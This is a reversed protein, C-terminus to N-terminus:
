STQGIESSGGHELAICGFSCGSARAMRSTGHGRWAKPYGATMPPSVTSFGRQVDVESPAPHDALLADGAPTPDIVLVGRDGAPTFGFTVYGELTRIGNAYMALAGQIALRRRAEDITVGYQRAFERLAFEVADEPATSTASSTPGPSRYNSVPQEDVGPRLTTGAAVFAVIATIRGTAVILGRRWGRM